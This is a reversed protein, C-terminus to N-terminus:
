IGWSYEARSFFTEQLLDDDLIEGLMEDQLILAADVNDATQAEINFVALKKGDEPRRAAALRSQETNEGTDFRRRSSLDQDVVFWKHRSFISDPQAKNKLLGPEQVPAGHALINLERELM